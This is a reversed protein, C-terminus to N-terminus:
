KGPAVLSTTDFQPGSIHTGGTSVMATIPTLATSRRKQCYERRLVIGGAPASPATVATHATISTSGGAPHPMASADCVAGATSATRTSQFSLVGGDITCNLGPSNARVSGTTSEPYGSSM